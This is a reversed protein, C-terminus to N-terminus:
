IAGIWTYHVWPSDDYYQVVFPQVDRAAYAAVQVALWGLTAIAAIVIPKRDVTRGITLGAILGGAVAPGYPRGSLESVNWFVMALWTSGAVLLVGCVAWLVLRTTRTM